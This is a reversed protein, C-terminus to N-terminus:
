SVDWDTMRPTHDIEQGKNVAVKAGTRFARHAKAKRRKIRKANKITRKSKSLYTVIAM